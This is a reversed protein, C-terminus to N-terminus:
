NSNKTIFKKRYIFLNREIYYVRLSTKNCYFFSINFLSHLFENLNILYMHLIVYLFVFIIFVNICYSNILYVHLIVYLFTFVVFVNIHHSNILYMYLIVFSYAFIVFVFYCCTMFLLICFCTENLSKTWM